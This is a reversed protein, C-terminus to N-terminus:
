CPCPNGGRLRGGAQSEAERVVHASVRLTISRDADELRGAVVHMPVGTLLLVTAHLHVHRLDHLRLRPSTGIGDVPQAERYAEARSLQDILRPDDQRDLLV